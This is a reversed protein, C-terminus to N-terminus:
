TYACGTHAILNESRQINETGSFLTHALYFESNVSSSCSVGQGKPCLLLRVLCDRQFVDKVGCPVDFQNCVVTLLDWSRARIYDKPASQDSLM